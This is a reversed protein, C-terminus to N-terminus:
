INDLLYNSVSLYLTLNGVFPRLNKLNLKFDIEFEPQAFYPIEGLLHNRLFNKRFDLIENTSLM